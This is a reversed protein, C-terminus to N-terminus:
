EAQEKMKKMAEEIRGQLDPYYPLGIFKEGNLFFTPVVSVDLSKSWAEQGQLQVIAGSGSVCDAFKKADLKLEKAYSLIAEGSKNLNAFLVSHMHLGKGQEAACFFGLAADGSGPYKKLPLMAIQLKVTGKEMYETKLRPYIENLFQRCYSCHHETFILLTLPADTNGVELVGNPLLREVLAGTGSFEETTPAREGIEEGGQRM